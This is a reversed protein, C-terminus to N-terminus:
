EFAKFEILEKLDFNGISLTEGKEFSKGQAENVGFVSSCAPCVLFFVKGNKVVPFKPVLRLEGNSFVSFSVKKSCSPCVLPATEGLPEIEKKNGLRYAM